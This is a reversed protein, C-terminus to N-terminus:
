VLNYALIYELMNPHRSSSKVQGSRSKCHCLPCKGLVQSVTKEKQKQKHEKRENLFYEGSALEKDM